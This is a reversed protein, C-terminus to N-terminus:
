GAAERTHAHRRSKSYSRSGHHGFHFKEISKLALGITGPTACLGDFDLSRAARERDSLPTIKLVPASRNPRSRALSSSRMAASSRTTRFETSRCLQDPAATTLTSLSLVM